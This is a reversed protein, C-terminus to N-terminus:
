FQRWFLFVMGPLRLHLRRWASIEERSWFIVAPLVYNFIYLDNKETGIYFIGGVLVINWVAHMLASNWISRSELTVLSFLIGTLSGAILLQLISPLDLDAGIVHSLAFILAPLISFLKHRIRSRDSWLFVSKM